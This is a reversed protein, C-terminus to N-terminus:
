SKTRIDRRKEEGVEHFSSYKKAAILKDMSSSTYDVDHNDTIIHTVRKSLFDM